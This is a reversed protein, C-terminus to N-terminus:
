SVVTQLHRPVPSSYTRYPGGLGSLSSAGTVALTIRALKLLDWPYGKSCRPDVTTPTGYGRTERELVLRVASVRLRLDGDLPRRSQRLATHFSKWQRRLINM